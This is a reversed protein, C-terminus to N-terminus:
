EKAERKEYHPARRILETKLVVPVNDPLNIDEPLEYEVEICFTKDPELAGLRVGLVQDEENRTLVNGTVLQGDIKVTKLRVFDEAGMDDCSEDLSEDLTFRIESESAKEDSIIEVRCSRQSTPVALARFQLSNGSRRFSGRGGRRPGSGTGKGNGEPEYHGPGDEAEKDGITRARGKRRRLERFSGAVSSRRGGSSVGHATIALVDHIRFQDSEQGPIIEKIKSAIADFAQNIKAKDDPQLKKIDLDCHLPGEAKRVLQAIKGDEADLLLVGHFPKLGSFLSERLQGPLDDTIWMGNRCLDIRSKGGETLERLKLSVRGFDTRVTVDEGKQITEFAAFARFGSLFKNRKSRRKEERFGELINEINSNDIININKEDEDVVEVMLEGQEFAAFFNCAAARSVIEWLSNRSERFHNFGPVAVVTGSSEWQDTIWRLKSGIYEPVEGNEPFVYPEFFDNRIEKVFFGDKSRRYSKYQHSALIAHGSGIVQGDQTRGGYLVYRLDSGPVVVFHGNGVAGTSRSDKISLGDALIGGMRSKDLGIGNDLAFLTTCNKKALCKEMARVVDQAQDSLTGNLKAKQNEVARDFASRYESIGPVQDLRHKVVEFRIRAVKQDAERVADLSNQMLERVVAAPNLDSFGAVGASTFGSFEGGEEGFYLNPETYKKSRKIKGM